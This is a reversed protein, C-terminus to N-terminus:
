SNIFERTIYERTIYAKKKEELLLQYNNTKGNRFLDKGENEDIGDISESGNNNSNDEVDIYIDYKIDINDGEINYKIEEKKDGDLSYKIEEKEDSVHINYYFPEEVVDLSYQIDKGDGLDISYQVVTNDEIDINLFDDELTEETYFQRNYEYIDLGDDIYIEKVVEPYNVISVFGDHEEMKPINNLDNENFYFDKGNSETIDQIFIDNRSENEDNEDYFIDKRPEHDV